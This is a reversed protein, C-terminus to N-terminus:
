AGVVTTIRLTLVVTGNAFGDGLRGTMSTAIACRVILSPPETV